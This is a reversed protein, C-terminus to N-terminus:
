SRADVAIICLEFGMLILGYWLCSWRVRTPVREDWAVLWCIIALVGILIMALYEWYTGIM